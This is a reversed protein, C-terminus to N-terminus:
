PLHRAAPATDRRYARHLWARMSLTMGVIFAIFALTLLESAAGDGRADVARRALAFLVVIGPWLLITLATGKLVVAGITSESRVYTLAGLPLGAVLGSVFGALAIAPRPGATWVQWQILILAVMILPLFWLTAVSLRHERLMRLALWLAGLVIVMDSLPSHTM